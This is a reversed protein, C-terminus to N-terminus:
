NTGNTTSYYLLCFIIVRELLSLSELDEQVNKTREVPENAAPAKTKETELSARAVGVVEPEHPKNNAPKLKPLEAEKPKSLSVTEEQQSPRSGLRPAATNVEASDVVVDQTPKGEFSGLRKAVSATTTTTTTANTTSFTGSKRAQSPKLPVQPKSDPEPPDPKFLGSKRVAQKRSLEELWDPKKDENAGGNVQSTPQLPPQLVGPLSPKKPAIQQTASRLGVDSNQRMSSSSASSAGNTGNHGSSGNTM